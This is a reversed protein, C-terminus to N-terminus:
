QGTAWYGKKAKVALKKERVEVSIKRFAGDMKANGSVYGLLYYDRGDAFARTLGLVLDNNNRFATGGTAAAIEALASQQDTASQNMASLVGPMMAASSSGANSAQFYGQTFLGRTDVTHMTLNSRAAVRVVQEFEHQMRDVSALAAFRFEPFYANLLRHAVMGPVLAFGDSLLVLTRRDTGHSLQEVIQALQRLFLLNYVREQMALQEALMPLMRKLSGCSPQGMDCAHRAEDLAHIFRSLDVDMSGLRSDLLHAQFRKEDLAAAVVAPDRTMNALIETSSGVAALVYQADGPREGALLKEVAARARQLGPMSTHLTDLCIVYTRRVPSRAPMAGAVPTPAEGGGAVVEAGASESSFSTIKQEVGDEFVRFDAQKLGTVHHGQADTAIVPVLVQRVDVRLTDGGSTGASRELKEVHAQYEANHADLGAASRYAALAEAREGLKELVQGLNLAAVANRPQFRLSARFEEAAAPLNGEKLLVVALFNHAPGDDPRSRLGARIEAEAGQPDGKAHLAVALHFRALAWEPDLRASERMAAMGADQKHDKELELGRALVEAADEHGEPTAAMVGAAGEAEGEKHVIRYDDFRHVTHVEGGAYRAHVTVRRPLWGSGEDPGFGVAGLVVDTSLSEFPFGEIQDALEVHLRLLRGSQEEIWALGHLRATRGGTGIVVHSALKSGPRQAFAVVAIGGEQLRGAFHFESQGRNEPLFYNLLGEFHRLVLYESAVPPAAASGSAVDARFEDLVLATGRSAYRTVYRFRETRGSVAGGREFRLEHIEEAASVDPLGALMRQVSEGSARLVPPLEAEGSSFRMRALEPFARVLEAGDYQPFPKVATQAQAWAFMLGSILIAVRM